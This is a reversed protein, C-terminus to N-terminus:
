GSFVSREPAGPAKAGVCGRPGAAWNSENRSGPHALVIPYNSCCIVWLRNFDGNVARSPCVRSLLSTRGPLALATAEGRLAHGRCRRPSLATAARPQCGAGLRQRPQAREPVRPCGHWGAAASGKPSGEKPGCEPSHFLHCCGLPRCRPLSASAPSHCEAFPFGGGARRQATFLEAEGEGLVLVCCREAAGVGKRPMERSWVKHEAGRLIQGGSAPSFRARPTERVGLFITNDRHGPLALCCSGQLEVAGPPFSTKPPCPNVRAAFM